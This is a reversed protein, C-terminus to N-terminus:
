VYIKLDGLKLTEPMRDTDMSKSAVKQAAQCIPWIWIDIDTAM